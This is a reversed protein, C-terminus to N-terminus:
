SAGNFMINGKPLNKNNTVIGLSVFQKIYIWREMLDLPKIQYSKLAKKDILKFLRYYVNLIFRLIKGRM